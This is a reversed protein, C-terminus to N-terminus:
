ARGPPRGVVEEISNRFFELIAKRAAVSSNVADTHASLLEDRRDIQANTQYQYFDGDVKVLTAAVLQVTGQSAKSSLTDWAIMQGKADGAVVSKVDGTFTAVELQSWDKIAELMKQIADALAM